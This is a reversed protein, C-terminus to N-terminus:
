FLVVYLFLDIVFFVVVVVVVVLFLFSLFYLSQKNICVARFQVFINGCVVYNLLCIWNQNRIFMFDYIPFSFFLRAIFCTVEWEALIYSYVSRFIKLPFVLFFVHWHLELDSISRDRADAARSPKAHATSMLHLAPTHDGKIVFLVCVFLCLFLCICFLYSFPNYSARTRKQFM